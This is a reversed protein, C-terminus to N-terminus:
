RKSQSKSKYIAKEVMDILYRPTLKDSPIITAVGIHLSISNDKQFQLNNLKFREVKERILKGVHVAGKSDTSCLIIAFNQDDYRALLDTSRKVVSQIEPAVKQLFEDKIAHNNQNSFDFNCLLLSLPLKKKDLTKWQSNLYDDFKRRNAVKNVVNSLIAPQLNQGATVLANTLQRHEEIEQELTQSYTIFDQNEDYIMLKNNVQTFIEAEQFPKIVCDLRVVDFSRVKDSVQQQSGMFIIPINMTEKELKLHQYVKYGDFDPMNIDLFILDPHQKRAIDLATKSNGTKQVNFGKSELIQSLLHLHESNNDILLILANDKDLKSKTKHMSLFM